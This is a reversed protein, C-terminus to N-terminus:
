ISMKVQPIIAKICRIILAYLLSISLLNSPMIKCKIMYAVARGNNLSKSEGNTTVIDKTKIMKGRNFNRAM